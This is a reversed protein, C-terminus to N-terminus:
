VTLELRDDGELTIYQMDNVFTREPLLVLVTIPRDVAYQAGHLVGRNIRVLTGEPIYFAELCDTNIDGATFGAFIVADGGHIYIMEDTSAHCEIMDVLMPRIGVSCLSVSLPGLAPFFSLIDPFFESVTNRGFGFSFADTNHITCFDGYRRFNERTIPKAKRTEM